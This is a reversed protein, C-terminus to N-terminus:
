RYIKQLWVHSSMVFIWSYAAHIRSYLKIHANQQVIYCTNQLITYPTYETTCFLTHISYYLTIHTNQQVTYHTYETTCHLTHIRYYLTIHTNQQVTYHSYETTCYFGQRSVVGTKLKVSNKKEWTEEWLIEQNIFEQCPQKNKTCPGSWSDVCTHNNM